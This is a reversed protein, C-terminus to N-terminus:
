LVIISLVKRQGARDGWLGLPVQFLGYTLIFASLTWGWQEKTLELDEMISVGAVSINIRDLFTIVGIVVLLTLVINRKKM